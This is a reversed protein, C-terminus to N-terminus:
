RAQLDSTILYRDFHVERDDVAAGKFPSGEAISIPDLHNPKDASAPPCPMFLSMNVMAPISIPDRQPNARSFVLVEDFGM